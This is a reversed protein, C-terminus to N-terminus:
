GASPVEKKFCIVAIKQRSFDIKQYMKRIIKQTEELSYGTDLMATVPKLHQLYLEEYNVVEAVFLRMDKNYVEFRKGLEFKEANAIRITTFYTCNLKHNWNYSFDLRPLNTDFLSM